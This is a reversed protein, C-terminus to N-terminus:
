KGDKYHDEINKIVQTRLGKLILDLQKLTTEKDSLFILQTLAIECMACINQVLLGITMEEKPKSILIEWVRKAMFPTAGIKLLGIKEGM